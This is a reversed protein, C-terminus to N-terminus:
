ALNSLGNKMANEAFTEADVEIPQCNYAEFDWEPKIYNNMNYEWRAITGADVTVRTPHDVAYQQFAHRSEHLLTSMLEKPDSNELMRSNLTISNTEPNYAGLSNPPMREFQLEPSYGSFESFNAYFDEIYAQRFEVDAAAYPIDRQLDCEVFGKVAANGCNEFEEVDCFPYDLEGRLHEPFVDSFDIDYVGASERIEDMRAELCEMTELKVDASMGAWSAEDPILETLYEKHINSLEFDQPRASPTDKVGEFDELGFM